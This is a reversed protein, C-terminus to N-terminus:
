PRRHTPFPLVGMFGLLRETGGMNIVGEGQGVVVGSEMLRWTQQTCGETLPSSSRRIGSNKGGSSKTAEAESSHCLDLGEPRCPTAPTWLFVEQSSRCDLASRISSGLLWLFSGLIHILARLLCCLRGLGCCSRLLRPRATVASLQM